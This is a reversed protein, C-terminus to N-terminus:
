KRSHKKHFEEYNQNYKEEKAVRIAVEENTEIRTLTYSIFFEKSNEDEYIFFKDEDSLGLKKLFSISIESDFGIPKEIQKTVKQPNKNVPIRCAYMM